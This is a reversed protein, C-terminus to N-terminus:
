PLNLAIITVGESYLQQLRRVSRRKPDREALRQWPVRMGRCWVVKRLFPEDLWELWRLVEDMEDIKKASPVPRAAADSDDGMAHRGAMMGLEKLGPMHSLTWAAEAVREVVYRRRGVLKDPSGKPTPEPPLAVPRARRSAGFENPELATALTDNEESVENVGRVGQRSVM